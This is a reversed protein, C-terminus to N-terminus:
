FYSSEIEVDFQYKMKMLNGFLFVRQKVKIKSSKLLNYDLIYLLHRM